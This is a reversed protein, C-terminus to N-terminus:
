YIDLVKRREKNIKMCIDLKELKIYMLFPRDSLILLWGGVQLISLNDNMDKLIFLRSDNKIPNCDEPIHDKAHFPGAYGDLVKAIDEAMVTEAKNCYIFEWNIQDKPITTYKM